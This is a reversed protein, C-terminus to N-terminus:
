EGCPLREPRAPDQRRESRTAHAPRDGKSARKFRSTAILDNRGGDRVIRFRQCPELPFRVRNRSKRM